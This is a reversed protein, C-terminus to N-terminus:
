PISTIGYFYYGKEMKKFQFVTQGGEHIPPVTSPETTTVLVELFLEKDTERELFHTEANQLTTIFSPTFFLQYDNAIFDDIAIFIMNEYTLSYWNDNTARFESQQSYEIDTNSLCEYCHIHSMSMDHFSNLDGSELHKLFLTWAEKNSTSGFSISSVIFLFAFVMWKM